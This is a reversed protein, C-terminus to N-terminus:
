PNSVKLPPRPRKNSWLNVTVDVGDIMGCIQMFTPKDTVWCLTPPEDWLQWFDKQLVWTNAMPGLGEATKIRVRCNIEHNGDIDLGTFCKLVVNDYDFLEGDHNEQVDLIGQRLCDVVRQTIEKHAM